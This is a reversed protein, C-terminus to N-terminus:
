NKTEDETTTKLEMGVIIKNLAINRAGRDCFLLSDLRWLCEEKRYILILKSTM